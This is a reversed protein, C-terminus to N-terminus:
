SGLVYYGRGDHGSSGVMGNAVHQMVDGAQEALMEVPPRNAEVKGTRLPPGQLGDAPTLTQALGLQGLVQTVALVLGLVAAIIFGIFTAEITVVAAKALVPLIELAFAWDWMM